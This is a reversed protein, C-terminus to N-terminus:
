LSRFLKDFTNIYNNWSKDTKVMSNFNYKDKFLQKLRDWKPAFPTQFFKINEVENDDVLDHFSILNLNMEFKTRNDDKNLFDELKEENEVIAKARKDGIGTFGEINDAADGRLAKWMVYDYETGEVYDKKVPNYVKVTDSILQIFDTDSSVITVVTNGDDHEKALHAAVDDCEYDPHKVLSIPFFEWLIEIVDRRQQSFNDKNHYERQGKYESLLTLRKKPMGELVFYATDPNFKEILPRLSRFFNFITSFDGKNMGSYRARYLLNYGDLILVKKQQQTM